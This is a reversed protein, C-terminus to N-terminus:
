SAVGSANRDNWPLIRALDDIVAPRNWMLLGSYAAVGTSVAVALVFAPKAGYWSLGARVLLVLVSM